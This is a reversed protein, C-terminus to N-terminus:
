GSDPTLDTPPHFPESSADGLADGAAPPSGLSTKPPVLNSSNKEFRPIMNLLWTRISDLDVLIAVSAGQPARKLYDRRFRPIRGNLEMKTNTKDLMSLPFLIESSGVFSGRWLASSYLRTSAAIENNNEPM